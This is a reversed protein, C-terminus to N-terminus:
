GRLVIQLAEENTARTDENQELGSTKWNLVILERDVASRSVVDCM